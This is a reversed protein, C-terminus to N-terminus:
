TKPLSRRLFNLWNTSLVADRVDAPVVSGIQQLGAV